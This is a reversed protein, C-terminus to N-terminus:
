FGSPKTSRVILGRLHRAAINGLLRDLEEVVERSLVNASQDAVDLTLLAIEDDAAGAILRGVSDIQGFELRWHRLVVREIPRAVSVTDAEMLRNGVRYSSAGRRGARGRCWACRRRYRRGQPRAGETFAAGPAREFRRAPPRM